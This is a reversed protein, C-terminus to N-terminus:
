SEEGLSVYQDLKHHNYFVHDKVKKINNAKFELNAAIDYIDTDSERISDYIKSALKDAIEEASERYPNKIQYIQDGVEIRIIKKNREKDLKRM